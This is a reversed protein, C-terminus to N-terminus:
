SHLYAVISPVNRGMCAALAPLPRVGRDGTIIAASKGRLPWCGYGPRDDIQQRKRSGHGQPGPVNTTLWLPAHLPIIAKDVAMSRQPTLLTGGDGRAAPAENIDFYIYRPNHNM